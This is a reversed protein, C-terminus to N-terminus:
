QEKSRNYKLDNLQKYIEKIALNIDKTTEEISSTKSIYDNNLMAIVIDRTIEFM